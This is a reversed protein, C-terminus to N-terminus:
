SLIKVSNALYISNSSVDTPAYTAADIVQSFISKASAVQNFDIVYFKKEENSYDGSFSKPPTNQRQSAKV